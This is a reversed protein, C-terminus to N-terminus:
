IQTVVFYFLTSPTYVSFTPHLRGKDFIKAGGRQQIMREDSSGGFIDQHDQIFKEDWSRRKRKAPKKEEKADDGIATSM